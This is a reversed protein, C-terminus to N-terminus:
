PFQEPIKLESNSVRVLRWDWPKRPTRRWELEFPTTLNNIREKVLEAAEGESEIMVKGSWVGRDNEIAVAPAGAILRGGRLYPSISRLRTVITARDHGWQDGFDEALLDTVADWDRDEVQAFLEETHRRVQRERQWLWSLLMATLLAASLGVYFGRRLWDSMSGFSRPWGGKGFGSFAFHSRGWLSDINGAFGSPFNCLM